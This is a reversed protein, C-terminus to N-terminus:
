LTSFDLVRGNFDFVMWGYEAQVSDVPVNRIRVEIAQAGAQRVFPHAGISVSELYVTRGGGLRKIAEAEMGAIKQETLPSLAAVAFRPGASDMAFSIGARTVGDASFDFTAARGGNAPDDLTIRAGRDEFVVSAIRSDQGFTSGVRKLAAAITAADLWNTKPRRSAPLVVRTIAGKTDAIVATTEGGPDIIEVTWVLVPRGPQESSKAVSLRSVRAQPIAVKALADRQLKALITWDVDDVGFPPLAPAGMAANVDVAGLRQVLGDLDWTFTATEPMGLGLPALRRDAINTHFGITKPEVAVETLVPGAGLAARFAAAADTALEPEKFLDLTQARRTGSLDAGVIVGQANAYIDARERGSDLHVTWRIDGSTPKPLIYIRRAIEMHTVVAADQLKARKIADAILKPAASFDVADLDFLNAELDPNILQLDVPQPGSLRQLPLMKLHGVRGYRWRDVHNRNRADQAEITIGDADVELRLIRPHPGIASRLVSLALGFKTSDDLYNARAGGPVLLAVALLALVFGARLLRCHM